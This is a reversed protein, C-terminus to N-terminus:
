ILSFHSFTDVQVCGRKRDRTLSKEDCDDFSISITWRKPSCCTLVSVLAPSTSAMLSITPHRSRCREWVGVFGINKSHLITFVWAVQWCGLLLSQNRELAARWSRVLQLLIICHRWQLINQLELEHVYDGSLRTSEGNQIWPLLWEKSNSAYVEVCIQVNGIKRRKEMKELGRSSRTRSQDQLPM